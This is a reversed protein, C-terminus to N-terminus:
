EYQKEKAKLGVYNTIGRITIPEILHTENAFRKLEVCFSQYGKGMSRTETCYAKYMLFLDDKKDYENHYKKDFDFSDYMFAYVSNSEKTNDFMDEQSKKNITFIKREKLLLMGEIAWNLIGSGEEELLVEDIRDVREAEPIHYTFPISIMRHKMGQGNQFKPLDNCSIIFKSKVQYMFPSKYKPNIEIIGEASITTLMSSEIYKSSIEDSFNLQKGVLKILSSSNDNALQSLSLTSYNDEGLLGCLIKATTSKGNRATDGYLYFVKHKPNGDGICYGFMEQIMDKTSPDSHSVTEVFKEFKPAQAEPNYDYPLQVTSFYNSTHETLTMTDVDLLGNKLNLKMKRHLVDTDKFHRGKTRALLSGVRAITDTIKRRSSRHELLNLEFMFSDMLDEIDTDTVEKYVGHEYSYFMINNGLRYTVISPYREVFKQDLMNYLANTEERSRATLANKLANTKTKTEIYEDIESKTVEHTKEMEYLSTLPAGRALLTHAKNYFDLRTKKM